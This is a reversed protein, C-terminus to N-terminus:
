IYFYKLSIEWFKLVSRHAKTMIKNEQHLCIYVKKKTLVTKNSYSASFYWFNLFMRLVYGLSLFPSLVNTQISFLIM